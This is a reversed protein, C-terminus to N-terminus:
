SDNDAIAFIKRLRDDEDTIIGLRRRRQIAQVVRSAYHLCDKIQDITLEPYEHLLNDLSHNSSLKSLVLDVPIQTGKILPKGAMVEPDVTIGRSIEKAMENEDRGPDHRPRGCSPLSAV